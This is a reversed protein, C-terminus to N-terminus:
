KMDCVECEDAGNKDVGPGDCSIGLKAFRHHLVDLHLSIDDKETAFEVEKGADADKIAHVSESSNSSCDSDLEGTCDKLLPHPEFATSAHSLALAKELQRIREKMIKIRARLKEVEAATHRAPDWSETQGIASSPSASFESQVM